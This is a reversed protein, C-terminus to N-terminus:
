LVRLLDISKQLALAQDNCIESAAILLKGEARSRILARLDSHSIQLKTLAVRVEVTRQVENNSYRKAALDITTNLIALAATGIGSIRAVDDKELGIAALFSAGLLGALVAVTIKSRSISAAKLLVKETIPRGAELIGLCLEDSFQARQLLNEYNEDESGADPGRSVEDQFNPFQEVSASLRTANLARLVNVLENFRLRGQPESM